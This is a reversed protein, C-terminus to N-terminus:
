RGRTQLLGRFPADRRYLCFFLKKMKAEETTTWYRKPPWAITAKIPDTWFPTQRRRICMSAKAAKAEAEAALTARAAAEEQLKRAAENFALAKAAWDDNAARCLAYGAQTSALDAKLNARAVFLWALVGAVALVVAVGAGTKWADPLIM